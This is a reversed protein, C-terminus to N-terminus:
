PKPSKPSTGASTATFVLGGIRDPGVAVAALERRARHEFV